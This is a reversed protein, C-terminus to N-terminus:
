TASMGILRYYPTMTRANMFTSPKKGSYFKITFTKTSNQKKQIPVNQIVLEDAGSTVTVTTFGIM